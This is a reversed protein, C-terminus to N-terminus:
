RVRNDAKQPSLEEREKKKKTEEAQKALRAANEVQDLRERLLRMEAQLDANERQMLSQLSVVPAELAENKYKQKDHLEQVYELRDKQV